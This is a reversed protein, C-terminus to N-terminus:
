QFLRAYREAINRPHFGLHYIKADGQLFTSDFAASVAKQSIYCAQILISQHSSADPLHRICNPMAKAHFINKSLLEDNGPTNL